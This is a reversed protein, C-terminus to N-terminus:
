KENNLSTSTQFNVPKTASFGGVEVTMQLVQIKKEKKIIM